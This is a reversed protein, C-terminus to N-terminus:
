KKSSNNIKQFESEDVITSSRQSFTMDEPTETILSDKRLYKNIADTLYKEKDPKESLNQVILSSLNQVSHDLDKFKHIEANDKNLSIQPNYNPILSEVLTLNNLSLCDNEYLSVLLFALAPSCSGAKHLVRAVEKYINKEDQSADSHVVAETFLDIGQTM